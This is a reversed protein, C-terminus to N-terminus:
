SCESPTLAAGKDGCSAIGKGNIGCLKPSIVWNVGYLAVGVRNLVKEYTALTALPVTPNTFIWETNLIVSMSAYINQAWLKRKVTSMSDTLQPISDTIYGGNRNGDPGPPGQIRCLVNDKWDQVTTCAPSDSSAICKPVSSVFSTCFTILIIVIILTNYIMWSKNMQLSSTWPIIFKGQNVNLKSTPCKGVDHILDDHHCDSTDDMTDM